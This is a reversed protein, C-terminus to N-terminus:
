PFLLREDAPEGDKGILVVRVYADSLAEIRVSGPHGELARALQQLQSATLGVKALAVAGPDLPETM